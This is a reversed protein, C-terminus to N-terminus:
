DRWGQKVKPKNTDSLPECTVVVRKIKGRADTEHSKYKVVLGIHKLGVTQTPTLRKYGPLRTTHLTSSFTGIDMRAM